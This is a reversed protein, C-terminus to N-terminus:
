FTTASRIGAFLPGLAALATQNAMVAAVNGAVRIRGAMLADQPSLEGRFLAVATPYDETFTADAGDAPDNGITIEGGTIRLQYRVEGDPGGTVVQGLVVDGDPLRHGRAAENAAQFWEPSLYRPVNARYASRVM